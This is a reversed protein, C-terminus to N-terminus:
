SDEVVRGAISEFGAVRVGALDHPGPLVSRGRFALAQESGGGGGMTPYPCAGPVAPDEAPIGLAAANAPSYCHTCGAVPLLDDHIPPDERSQLVACEDAERGAIREVGIPRHPAAAAAVVAPRDGSPAGRGLGHAIGRGGLVLGDSRGG